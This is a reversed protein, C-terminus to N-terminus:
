SRPTRWPQMDCSNCIAINELTLGSTPPEAAM